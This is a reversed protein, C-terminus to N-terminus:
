GVIIEYFKEEQFYKNALKQLDTSKTKKITDIFKQYESFDKGYLMVKKFANSLAFPGNLSRQLQGMIYNKVLELEAHSVPENKIKRIEKYIEDVVKNRVDKGAETSIIFYGSNKLSVIGSGIGYTYGKDERINKMLRSGFFGGLVSNLIQMQLYDEHNRNFMQCGFRIASQVANKNEIYIKREAQPQIEFTKEIVSNQKSFKHKGFYNNLIKIHNETVKGALIIKCNKAVYHKKFFTKLIESNIKDYDELEAFSGYPHNAGFLAQMFKKRAVKEVKRQNVVFKHKKNALETRLEDEPYISNQIVDDLLEVIKEFHKTLTYAQIGATNYGIYTDVESGYFDETEAIQASTKTTTGGILLANAFSSVLPQPQVWLGANYIIDAKLVEEEGANIVFVETGNDLTYKQPEIVNIAEIKQFSPPTKRDIM